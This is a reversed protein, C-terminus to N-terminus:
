ETRARKELSTSSLPAELSSQRKHPPRLGKVAKGDWYLRKKPPRCLDIFVIALLSLQMADVVAHHNKGVLPDDEGFVVRFLTPLGLPFSRGRFCERGLVRDVNARFELLLLCLNQGAPLVNDFGEAPLWNKLLSLDFGSSGWSLFKTDLSIGLDQIKTAVCKADLTGHVSPLARVKNEFDRQFRRLPTSVNSSSSPKIAALGAKSYKTLCDLLRGPTGDLSALGILRSPPPTPERAHEKVLTKALDSVPFWQSM